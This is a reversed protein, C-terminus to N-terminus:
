MDPFFHLCLVIIARVTQEVGDDDIHSYVPYFSGQYMCLLDWACSQLNSWPSATPSLKICAEKPYTPWALDHWKCLQVLIQETQPSRCFVTWCLTHQSLSTLQSDVARHKCPTCMQMWLGWFRALFQYLILSDFNKQMRTRRLCSMSQLLLGKTGKWRRQKTASNSRPRPSKRPKEIMLM